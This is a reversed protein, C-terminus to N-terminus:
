KFSIIAYGTKPEITINSDHKGTSLKLVKQEVIESVLDGEYPRGKADFCLMDNQFDSSDVTVHLSFRGGSQSANEELNTFDVCGKANGVIISGDFDRRNFGIAEYQARKIKAVIFNTDHIIYNSKFASSGVGAMIAIIVLVFVIELLTFANKM